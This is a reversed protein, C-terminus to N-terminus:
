QMSRFSKAAARGLRHQDAFRNNHGIIGSGAIEGGSLGREEDCMPQNGDSGLFIRPRAALKPRFGVDTLGGGCHALNSAVVDESFPEAIGAPGADALEIIRIHDARAIQLTQLSNCLRDSVLESAPWPAVSEKGNHRM